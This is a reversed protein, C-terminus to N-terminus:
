CGRSSTPWPSRRPSPWRSAPSARRRVRIAAAMPVRRPARPAGRGPQRGPGVRPRSARRRRPDLSVITTASVLLGAGNVAFLAAAPLCAAAVGRARHDPRVPRARAVDRAPRRDSEPSRFAAAIAGSGAAMGLAAVLGIVAGLTAVTPARREPDRARVLDAGLGFESLASLVTWVTLAVAFVGYAEPAVLRAIVISM